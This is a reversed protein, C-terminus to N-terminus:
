CSPRRDRQRPATAPSALWIVCQVDKWKLPTTRSYNGDLVWSQPELAAAVAASVEDDDLHQWDPQWYIADMELHPIGLVAALRKSFTSKGSGSTGIVNIRRYQRLDETLIPRGPLSAGRKLYRRDCGSRHAISVEM